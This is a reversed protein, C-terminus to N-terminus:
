FMTTSGRRDFDASAFASGFRIAEVGDLQHRHENPPVVAFLLNPAYDMNGGDDVLISPLEM